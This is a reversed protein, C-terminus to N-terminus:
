RVTLNQLAFSLPRSDGTAPDLDIPRFNGAELALTVTNWGAQLAIAQQLRQGVQVPVARNGPTIHLVGQDGKGDPSGAVHLAVPTAELTVTRPAPSYLWLAAPSAAWRWTQAAEGGAAGPGEAGYWGPGYAAQVGGAADGAMRVAAEALGGTTLNVQKIAFTLPQDVPRSDATPAVTLTIVQSGPLLAVPMSTTQGPAVPAAVTVAGNGSEVTLTAYEYYTSHDATQIAQPTVELATLQAVPSHVVFTAPSLPWRYDTWDQLEGPERLAISPQLTVAPLADGVAYVTVLADDVLPPEDGFVDRILEATAQEGWMGPHYLPDGPQPKHVVVYRYNNQALDYRLNAYRSSPQGDVTVDNQWPSVTNFNQSIFQAFLPHTAYFRSPYGTAIGKGHTIQDIQYFTSYYVYWAAPDGTNDPRIPLDFVGYRAPDAAVQRYFEPTPPLVTRPFPAPWAEVLVFVISVAAVGAWARRNLLPRLQDLGIAACAAFATYGLFMFRGPTRMYGFGPLNSALSYPLFPEFGPLRNEGLVKLTPGLAFLMAVLLMVLWIGARRPARWLAVACLLLGLWSLYASSEVAAVIHPALWRTLFARYPLLGLDAPVFFQALDPQHRASENVVTAAVGTAGAASTVLLYVPPLIAALSLAVWGLRRWDAATFSRFQWLRAILLIGVGLGAFVFQEPAQMYALLVAPGALLAWAPQEQTRLGRRTVLLALPIAGLFAKHLHGAIALVHLPALMLLLGALYAAPRSCGLDRALLYMCWGTLAFGIVLAANYAAATGLPWFPAAFLASLPGLANTAFTVGQPYYLLSAFYPADRGLQVGRWYGLSGVGWTVDGAGIVAGTFYRPLPWTILLTVVAAAALPAVADLALWRLWHRSRRDQRQTSATAAAQM